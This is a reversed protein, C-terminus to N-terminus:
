KNKEAEKFHCSLQEYTCRHENTVPRRIGQVSRRGSYFEVMEINCEQVKAWPQIRAEHDALFRDGNALKQELYAAGEAYTAFRFPRGYDLWWACETGALDGKEPWYTIGYM